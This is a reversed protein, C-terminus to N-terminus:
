NLSRTAPTPGTKEVARFSPNSPRRKEEPPMSGRSFPKPPRDSQRRRRLRRIVGLGLPRAASPSALAFLTALLVWLDDGATASRAYEISMRNRLPMVCRLYVDAPDRAGTILETERYLFFLTGPDTIGPTLIQMPAAQRDYATTHAPHEPRPGVLNMDGRFVNILQPLEDLRYRRLWSGLPSIRGDDGPTIQLADTTGQNHMTRFKIMGFTVGHRGVRAHRFLVPVGDCVLVLLGISILLPGAALMLLLSLWRSVHQRLASRDVPFGGTV